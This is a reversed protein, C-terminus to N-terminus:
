TLRVDTAPNSALDLESEKLTYIEEDEDLYVPVLPPPASPKHFPKRDKSKTKARDSLQATIEDNIKKKKTKKNKSSAELADKSVIRNKITESVKTPMTYIKKERSLEPLSQTAPVLESNLIFPDM